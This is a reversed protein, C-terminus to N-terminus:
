SKGINSILKIPVRHKLMTNGMRTNKIFSKPPL